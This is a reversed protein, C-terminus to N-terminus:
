TNGTLSSFLSQPPQQGFSFPSDFPNTFGTMSEFGSSFINMPQVKQNPQPANGAAIARQSKPFLGKLPQGFRGSASATYGSGVARSDGFAKMTNFQQQGIREGAAGAKVLNAGQRVTNGINALRAAQPALQGMEQVNQRGAQEQTAYVTGYPTQIANKDAL